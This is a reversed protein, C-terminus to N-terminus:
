ASSSPFVKSSFFTKLKVYLCVKKSFSPKKSIGFSDNGSCLIQASQILHLCKGTHLSTDSMLVRYFYKEVYDLNTDKSDKKFGTKKSLDVITEFTYGWKHFSFDNKQSGYFLRIGWNMEEADKGNEVIKLTGILDPVDIM